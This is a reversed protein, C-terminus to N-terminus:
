QAWWDESSHASSLTNFLFFSISFGATLSLGPLKIFFDAPLQTNNTVVDLIAVLCLTLFFAVSASRKIAETVFEDLFARRGRQQRKHRLLRVWIVMAMVLAISGGRAPWLAWANLKQGAAENVLYAGAELALNVATLFFFLVIWNVYSDFADALTKGM